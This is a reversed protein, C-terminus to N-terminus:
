RTYAVTPQEGHPGCPHPAVWERHCSDCIMLFPDGVAVWVPRARYLFPFPEFPDPNEIFEPETM